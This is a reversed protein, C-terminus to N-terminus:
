LGRREGVLQDRSDKPYEATSADCALVANITQTM